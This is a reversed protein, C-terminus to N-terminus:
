GLSKSQGYLCFKLNKFKLLCSKLLKGIEYVKHEEILQTSCHNHSYSNYSMKLLYTIADRTSPQRVHM